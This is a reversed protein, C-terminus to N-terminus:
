RAEMLTITLENTSSENKSSHSYAEVPGTEMYFGPQKPQALTSESSLMLVVNSMTPRDEPHQQLCLLSVHICRLVESLAYSEGMSADVLELPKGENWM